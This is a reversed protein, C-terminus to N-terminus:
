TVPHPNNSSRERETVRVSTYPATIALTNLLTDGSFISAIAVMRARITPVGIAGVPSM